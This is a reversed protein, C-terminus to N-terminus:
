EVELPINEGNDVVRHTAAWSLKVAAVVPVALQTAVVYLAKKGIRSTGCQSRRHYETTSSQVHHIYIYIHIHIFTNMTYNRIDNNFSVVVGVALVKLKWESIKDGHSKTAARQYERSLSGRVTRYEDLAQLAKDM